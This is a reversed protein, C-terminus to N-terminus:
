GGHFAATGIATGNGGGWAGSRLRVDRIWRGLDGYVLERACEQGQTGSTPLRRGQRQAWGTLGGKGSVAKARRDASARLDSRSLQDAVPHALIGSVGEHPLNTLSVGPKKSIL